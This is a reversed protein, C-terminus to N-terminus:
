RSAALQVNPVTAVTYGAGGSRSVGQASAPVPSFGGTAALLACALAFVFAAIRKTTM